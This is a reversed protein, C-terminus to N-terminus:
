GFERSSFGAARLTAEDIGLELFSAPRIGNAEAWTKAHATFAQRYSDGGGQRLEQLRNIARLKELPDSTSQVVTELRALEDRDLLKSPDDLFQLYNRVASESESATTMCTFQLPFAYGGRVFRVQATPPM